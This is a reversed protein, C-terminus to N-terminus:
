SVEIGGVSKELSHRLYNVRLRLLISFKGSLTLVHLLKCTKNSSLLRIGVTGSEKPYHMERFYSVRWLLSICDMGCEKVLSVRRGEMIFKDFFQM